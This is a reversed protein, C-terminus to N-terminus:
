FILHPKNTSIYNDIDEWLKLVKARDTYRRSREIDLMGINWTKANDRLHEDPFKPYIGM